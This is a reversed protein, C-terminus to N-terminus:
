SSSKYRTTSLGWRGRHHVRRAQEHRALCRASSSRRTPPKIQSYLRCQPRNAKSGSSAPHRTVSVASSIDKRGLSQLGPPPKGSRVTSTRPDRVLSPPPGSSTRPSGIAIDPRLFGESAPREDERADPHPRLLSWSSGVLRDPSGPSESPKRDSRNADMFGRVGEPACPVQGHEWVRDVPQTLGMKAIGASVDAIRLYAKAQVPTAGATVLPGCHHSAKPDATVGAGRSLGHGRSWHDGVLDAANDAALASREAGYVLAASPEILPLTDNQPGECM